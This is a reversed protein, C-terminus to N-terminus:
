IGVIDHVCQCCKGGLGTGEMNGLETMMVKGPPAITFLGRALAPSEPSMPKIRSNPLDGPPPFPLSSWCEQRFLRVFGPLSCNMSNCLIPCSQAVSCTCIHATDSPNEQHSLPLSGAHWYLLSLLCLNSGQTLFIGQLHFHCGM